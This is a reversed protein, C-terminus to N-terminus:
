NVYSCLRFDVPEERCAGTRVGAPRSYPGSATGPLVVGAVVRVDLKRRLVNRSTFQICFPPSSAHRPAPCVLTISNQANYILDALSNTYWLYITLIQAGVWGAVQDVTTSVSITAAEAAARVAAATQPMTAALLLYVMAAAAAVGAVPLWTPPGPPKEQGGDAAAAAAAAVQVTSLPTRRLATSRRTNLSVLSAPRVPARRAALPSYSWSSSLQLPAVAVV